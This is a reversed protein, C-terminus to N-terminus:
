MGWLCGGPEQRQAGRGVHGEARVEQAWLLGCLVCDGRGQEQLPARGAHTGKDGRYSNSSESPGGRM